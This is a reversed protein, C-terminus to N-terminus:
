AAASGSSPFQRALVAPDYNRLRARAPREVRYYSWAGMAIAAGLCLLWPAGARHLLMFPQQWLYLSFSIAGFWVLLRASLLRLIPPPAHDITAAAIALAGTGIGFRLPGPDMAAFWCGVALAILPVGPLRRLVAQARPEQAALYLAFPLLLSSARVDTRLSTYYPDHGLVSVQHYGNVLALAATALAVAIVVAVRRRALVAILALLLYGHEEVALSWGHDVYPIAVVAAVYNTTFTLAAAAGVLANREDGFTSSAALAVAVLLVYAWLAPWVRVVRRWVFTGIPQKQEILIQAMLRGSLVFFLEVGLHGGRHAVTFHGVLVLLISLGRWGDLHLVRPAADISPATIASL